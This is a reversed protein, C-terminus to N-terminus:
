ARAVHPIRVVIRSPVAFRHTRIITNVSIASFWINARAPISVNTPLPTSVTDVQRFEEEEKKITEM